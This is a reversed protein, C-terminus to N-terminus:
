PDLPNLIEELTLGAAEAIDNGLASANFSSSFAVPTDFECGGTVIDSGTDLPWTQAMGGSTYNGFASSNIPLTITGSTRASIKARMGNLQVTGGIDKLAVSEGVVFNNVIQITTTVGKTVGTITGTKNASLTLRGTNPDVTGGNPYSVGAVAYAFAGPVLKFLLRKPRGYNALGPKDRGYEKQFQYVGSGLPLLACDLATYLSQGDLATTHDFWDQVRFGAFGGYTRHFLSLVSLALDSGPKIYSIDFEKYPRQNKLSAFRGGGATRTVDVKYSNDAEAGLRICPDLREEIFEGM